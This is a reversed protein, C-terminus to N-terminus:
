LPLLTAEPLKPWLAMRLPIVERPLSTQAIRPSTASRTVFM